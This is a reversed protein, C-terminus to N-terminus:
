AFIDVGFLQQINERSAISDISQYTSVASQNLDRITEFENTQRRQTQEQQASFQTSFNNSSSVLEGGLANNESVQFEQEILAIAREDIDLRPTRQVSNQSISESTNDNNRTIKEVRASTTQNVSSINGSRASQSLLSIFKDSSIQM